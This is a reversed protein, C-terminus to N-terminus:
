KLGLDRGIRDATIRGSLLALPIGGGPHTSGGAFYLNSLGAAKNRPRLFASFASNSSAGYLAGDAGNYRHQFDHPTLRSQWLVEPRLGFQEELRRWVSAAFIDQAEQDQHDIGCAPANMLIYWCECGPPALSPDTKSAISVYITMQRPLRRREFIDRFEDPYDDSFFINHHALSPHEGKVAALMLFGSCSREAGAITRPTPIGAPELLNRYTWLVDANSILNKVPYEKGGARLATLRNGSCQVSEVPTSTHIEVGADRALQELADVIRSMGGMPYWTGLGLEVHSIVNLMAPARYPSSGNYTAFRGLLQVLKASRFRRMLSAHMTRPGARLLSPLLLINRLKVLEKFGEFEGFLFIHKTNDYLHANDELFAPLADRDEPFVRNLEEAMRSPDSYADFVTQDSWHYRCTPDVRRLDICQDLPVDYAQFLERLVDPLTLVTPGLDFVFGQHELRSLKGGLRDNKEFMVVEEGMRRLWIAAAIGAVGAGLLTTPPLPYDM